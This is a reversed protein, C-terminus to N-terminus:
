EKMIRQRFRRINQIVFCEQHPKTKQHVFILDPKKKQFFFFFFQMGTAAIFFNASHQSSKGTTLDTVTINWLNTEKDWIAEDVRHMLNISDQINFKSTMDRLYTLLEDRYAWKKSFTRPFFSFQYLYSEVDACCGPYQNVNWVGGVSDHKEFVSVDVGMKKLQVAACLGAAGAGVIFAKGKGKLSSARRETM